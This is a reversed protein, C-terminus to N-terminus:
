NEFKVNLDTFVRNLWIDGSMSQEMQAVATPGQKLQDGEFRTQLEELSPLKETVRFVYYVSKAQNPAVGVKGVETGFVQKMFEEGVGELKPVFTPAIGGGMGMGMGMRSLWPFPDTTIVLSRLTENLAGSWPDDGSVVKTSLEKAAQEALTRAQQKKWAAIVEDRVEALQPETTPRSDVKWFYYEKFDNPTIGTLGSMLPFFSELQPSTLVESAFGVRRGDMFVGSTGLSTASLQTSDALETEGHVLGNEEAYKKLDPRIPAQADDAGANKYAQYQRYALYYERMMQQVKTLVETAVPRAKIKALDTLIEERAEELSKTRMNPQTAASESPDTPEATALEEDVETAEAAAQPAGEAAPETAAPEEAAPEATPESAPPESAPPESTPPETAPPEVADESAGNAAESAADEEQYWAVLQTRGDSLLSSQSEDGSDTEPNPEVAADEPQESSTSEPAATEPAAAEPAATEPAATEPAAAETAADEPEGADPSGADPVVADPSVADPSVDTTSPPDVVPVQLLGLGVLRDYEAQIEAETIKPKEKDIWDQFRSEVYEAKARAPRLFGAAESYQNPLRNKGEEFLSQIQAEDPQGEVKGVFEHVYVPYAEVKATQTLKLFDNWTKAPPRAMITGGALNDAVLFALEQKIIERIDYITLGNTNTKLIEYFESDAIKSDCFSLLFADAANEDFQIGMRYAQTSLIRGLCVREASLTEDIGVSLIEGSPSRNFGPVAPEGGYEIVKKALARLFILLQNKKQMAMEVENRTLRGGDWSVFVTNDVGAGRFAQSATDIAPAVVFALIALLVLAAM